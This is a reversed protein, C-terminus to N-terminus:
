LYRFDNRYATRGLSPSSEMFILFWPAFFSFIYHESNLLNEWLEKKLTYLYIYRYTPIYTHRYTQRYAHMGPFMTSIANRSDCGDVFDRPLEIWSILFENLLKSFIGSKICVYIEKLFSWGVRGFFLGINCCSWIQVGQQWTWFGNALLVSIFIGPSWVVRLTCFSLRKKDHQSEPNNPTSVHASMASTFTQSQFSLLSNQKFRNLKLPPSSSADM